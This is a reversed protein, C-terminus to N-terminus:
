RTSKVDLTAVPSSTSGYSHMLAGMPHRKPKVPMLQNALELDQVFQSTLFRAKIQDGLQVQTVAFPPPPAPSPSAPPPQVAADLLGEVATRLGDSGEFVSSLADASQALSTALADRDTVRLGGQDALALGDVGAASLLDLANQVDSQAGAPTAGSSGLTALTSLADNMQTTAAEIQGAVTGANSAAGIGSQNIITGPTGPTAYFVGGTIGLAALVGSTDALTLTPDAARSSVSLQGTSQDLIASVDGTSNLAAVVDNLTESAPDIAIAHGNATLTGAHVAAYESMQGLTTDFASRATIGTASDATGDLKVAALFGSSDNGVVIPAQLAAADTASLTITQSADDYSAAVGASSANIKALVTNITDTDSV